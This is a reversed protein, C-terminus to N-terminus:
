AEDGSDAPAQTADPDQVEKSENSDSQNSDSQNSDAAQGVSAVHGAKKVGRPRM